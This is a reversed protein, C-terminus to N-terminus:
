KWKECKVFNGDPKTGGYCFRKLGTPYSWYGCVMYRDYKQPYNMGSKAINPTNEKSDFVLITSYRNAKKLITKKILSKWKENAWMSDPDNTYAVYLSQSPNSYGEEFSIIIENKRKEINAVSNRDRSSPSNVLSSILGIVFLIAFVIFISSFCGIGKKQKAGCNPCTKAAKSIKKGCETCKILAM